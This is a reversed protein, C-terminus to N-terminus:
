DPKGRPTAATAAAADAIWMRQLRRRNTPTDHFATRNHALVRNNVFLMDGRELRCRVVHDDRELLEDLLDLARRQRATLPQGAREQGTEIWYRMYRFTAGGPHAAAAFVPFRNQLLNDLDRERGPTVVDRILPQELEALLEPAAIAMEARARLANSILSDGGDDSPQECLLCVYDPVVDVSSSDTHFGTTAGTMSVPVAERTHDRGRDVVPYLLGYQLMPEGLARGLATYCHRLAADDLGLAGLGTVVAFGDGSRLQRRLSDAFTRLATGAPQGREDRAARSPPEPSTDAATAAGSPQVIEALFEDHLVSPMTRRWSGRALLETSSWVLEPWRSGPTVVVASM